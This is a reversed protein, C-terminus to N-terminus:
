EQQNQREDAAEAELEQLKDQYIQVYHKLTQVCVATNTCGHAREIHYVCALSDAHQRHQCEHPHWCAFGVQGTRSLYPTPLYPQKTVGFFDDLEMQKDTM